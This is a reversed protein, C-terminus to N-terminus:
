RRFRVALDGGAPPRAGPAPDEYRVHLADKSIRVVVGNGIAVDNGGAFTVVQGEAFDRVPVDGVLALHEEPLLATIHGILADPALRKIREVTQATPAVAPPYVPGVPPAAKPQCGALMLGAVLLGIWRNSHM